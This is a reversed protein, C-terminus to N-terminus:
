WHKIQRFKCTQQRRVEMYNRLIALCHLSVDFNGVTSKTKTTSFQSIVCVNDAPGSITGCTQHRWSACATSPLWTKVEVLPLSCQLTIAFCIFHRVFSIVISLKIEVGRVLFKHLLDVPSLGTSKSAKVTTLCFSFFDDINVTSLVCTKKDFFSCLWPIFVNHCSNNQMSGRIRGALGCKGEPRFARPFIHAPLSFVRTLVFCDM